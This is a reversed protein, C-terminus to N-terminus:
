AIQVDQLLNGLALNQGPILHSSGAGHQGDGLAGPDAFDRAAQLAIILGDPIGTAQIFVLPQRAQQL